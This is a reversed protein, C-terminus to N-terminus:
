FEAHNIRLYLEVFSVCANKFNQNKAIKNPPKAAWNCKKVIEAATFDAFILIDFIERTLKKCIGVLIM